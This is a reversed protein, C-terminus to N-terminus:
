VIINLIKNKIYIKKKITKDFLYKMIKQNEKILKVLTDEDLNKEVELLGRKKGNVQIVILTTSKEIQKEDFNPWEIKEEKTISKLCENSFHPLVPMFAILIKKYNEKITKNTYSKDIVKNLFSYVEHM